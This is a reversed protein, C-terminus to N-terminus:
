INYFKYQRPVNPQGDVGGVVQDNNNGAVNAIITFYKTIIHIPPNNKTHHSTHKLKNYV